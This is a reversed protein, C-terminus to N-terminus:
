PGFYVGSNDTPLLAIMYYENEFNLFTKLFSFFPVACTKMKLEKSKPWLHSFTSAM